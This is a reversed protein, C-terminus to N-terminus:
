KKTKEYVVWESPKITAELHLNFFQTTKLTWALFFVSYGLILIAIILYFQPRTLM